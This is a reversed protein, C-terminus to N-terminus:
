TIKTGDAQPNEPHGPSVLLRSARDLSSRNRAKSSPRTASSGSNFPLQSLFKQSPLAFSFDESKSACSTTCVSKGVRASRASEALLIGEYTLRFEMVEGEWHVHPDDALIVIMVCCGAYPYPFHLTAMRISTTCILFASLGGKQPPRKLKPRTEAALRAAWLGHRTRSEREQARRLACSHRSGGFLTNWGM